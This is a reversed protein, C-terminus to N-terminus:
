LDTAPPKNGAKEWLLQKQPVLDSICKENPQFNVRPAAIEIAAGM